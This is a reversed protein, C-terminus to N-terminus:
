AGELRAIKEVHQVLVALGDPEATQDRLVLVVDQQALYHRSVAIRKPAEARPLMGLFLEAEDSRCPLLSIKGQQSGGHVLVLEILLREDVDLPHAHEVRMPSRKPIATFVNSPVIPDPGRGDMMQELALIRWLLDQDRTDHSTTPIDLLTIIKELLELLHFARM